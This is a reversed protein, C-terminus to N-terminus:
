SDFVEFTRLQEVSPGARSVIEVRKGSGLVGGAADTIKPGSVPEFRVLARGDIVASDSTAGAVPADLTLGRGDKLLAGSLYGSPSVTFRAAATEIVVTGDPRASARVFVAGFAPVCCIALLVCFPKTFM